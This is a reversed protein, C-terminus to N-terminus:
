HDLPYLKSISVTSLLYIKWYFQLSPNSERVPWILSWLFQYESSRQKINLVLGTHYISPFQTCLHCSSEHDFPRQQKRVMRSPSAVHLEYKKIATRAQLKPTQRKTLMSCLTNTTPQFVPTKFGARINDSLKRVWYSHEVPGFRLNSVKKKYQHISSVFGSVAPRVAISFYTYTKQRKHLFIHKKAIKLTELQTGTM